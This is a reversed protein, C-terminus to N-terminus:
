ADSSHNQTYNTLKQDNEGSDALGADNAREITEDASADTDNSANNNRSDISSGAQKSPATDREENYARDKSKDKMVNKILKGPIIHWLHSNIKSEKKAGCLAV